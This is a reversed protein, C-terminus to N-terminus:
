STTALPSRTKPAELRLNRRAAGRRRTGEMTITQLSVETGPLAVSQARRVGMEATITTVIELPAM